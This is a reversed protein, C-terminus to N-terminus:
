SKEAALNGASARKRGHLRALLRRARVPERDLSTEVQARHRYEDAERLRDALVTQAMAMQQHVIGASRSRGHSHRSM